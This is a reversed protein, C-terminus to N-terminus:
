PLRIVMKRDSRSEPLEAVVVESGGDAYEVKVILLEERSYSLERGFASDSGVTKVPVTFSGGNTAEVVRWRSDIREIQGQALRWEERLVPAAEAHKIARDSGREVHVTVGYGGIWRTTATKDMLIVCGVFIGTFILWLWSAPGLKRLFM